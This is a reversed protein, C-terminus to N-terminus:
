NRDGGSLCMGINEWIHPYDLRKRWKANEDGSLLCCTATIFKPLVTEFQTNATEYQGM